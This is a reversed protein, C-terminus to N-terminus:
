GFPWTFLYPQTTTGGRAHSLKLTVVEGNVTLTTTVFVFGLVICRAGHVNRSTTSTRNPIGHHVRLLLRGILRASEISMTVSGNDPQAATTTSEIIALGYM